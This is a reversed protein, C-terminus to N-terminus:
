GRRALVRRFSSRVFSEPSTRQSRKCCSFRCIKPVRGRRMSLSLATVVGAGARGLHCGERSRTFLFTTTGPLCGRTRLGRVTSIGSGGALAWGYSPSCPYTESATEDTPSSNSSRISSKSGSRALSRSRTNMGAWSAAM